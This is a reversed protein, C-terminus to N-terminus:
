LTAKPVTKKTTTKTRKEWPAPAGAALHQASRLAFQDNSKFKSAPTSRFVFAIGAAVQAGAVVRRPSTGVNYRMSTGTVGMSALTASSVQVSMASVGAAITVVMTPTVLESVTDVTDVTTEIKEPPPPQFPPM